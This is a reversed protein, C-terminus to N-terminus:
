RTSGPAASPRRSTRRRSSIARAAPSSARTCPRRASRTSRTARGSCAASRTSCTSPSAPSPRRPRPSRTWSRAPTTTPCRTAWRAGRDRRRDAVRAQRDAAGDGPAGPQDAARRQHLHRGEGPVVHGAAARARAQGDRQPVPGARRAARARRARGRRAPHQPRVPRHGRGARVAGQVLRRDRRRVHEPDAPGARPRARPGLAARLHRPGRRRLRAPLRAARAPVLGHRLLGARQEPRAAPQRRRGRRGINGTAMALNAMGMVM